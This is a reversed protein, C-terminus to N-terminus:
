VTSGYELHPRVMTKYLQSMNSCDIHKFSRRKLCLISNAKESPSTTHQKFSLEKNIWVGLDKKCATEELKVTQEINNTMTYTYSPSNERGKSSHVKERM